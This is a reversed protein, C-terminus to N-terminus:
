STLGSYCLPVYPLSLFAKHLVGPFQIPYKLNVYLIKFYCKKVFIIIYDYRIINVSIKIFKLIYIYTHIHIYMHCNLKKEPAQM